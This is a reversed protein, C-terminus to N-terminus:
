LRCESTCRRKRGRCVRGQGASGQVAKTFPSRCSQAHVELRIVDVQFRSLFGPFYYILCSEPQFGSLATQEQSDHVILLQSSWLLPWSIHLAVFRLWCLYVENSLIHISLCWPTTLTQAASNCLRSSLGLDAFRLLHEPPPRMFAYSCCSCNVVWSSEVIICM